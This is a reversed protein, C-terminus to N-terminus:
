NHRFIKYNQTIFLFFLTNPFYHRKTPLVLSARKAVNCNLVLWECRKFLPFGRPVPQQSHSHDIAVHAFPVVVPLVVLELMSKIALLIMQQYLFKQKCISQRRTKAFFNCLYFILLRLYMQVCATNCM